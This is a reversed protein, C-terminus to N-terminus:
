AQEYIGHTTHKALTGLLEMVFFLEVVLDYLSLLVRGPLEVSGRLWSYRSGLKEGATGM